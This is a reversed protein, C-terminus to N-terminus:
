VVKSCIFQALSRGLVSYAELLLQLELVLIL